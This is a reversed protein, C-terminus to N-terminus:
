IWSHRLIRWSAPIIVITQCLQVCVSSHHFHSRSGVTRVFDNLFDLYVQQLLLLGGCSSTCRRRFVIEFLFLKLSSARLWFTVSCATKRCVHLTRVSKEPSHTAFDPFHTTDRDLHQLPLARGETVQEDRGQDGQEPQDDTEHGGPIGAHTQLLTKWLREVLYTMIWQM